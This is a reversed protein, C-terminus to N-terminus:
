QQWSLSSDALWANLQFDKRDQKAHFKMAWYSLESESVIVWTYYFTLESICSLCSPWSAPVWTSWSQAIAPELLQCPQSEYTGEVRFLQPLRLKSLVEAALSNFNINATGWLQLNFTLSSTFNNTEVTAWQLQLLHLMHTVENHSM